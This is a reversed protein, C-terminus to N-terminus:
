ESVVTLLTGWDSGYHFGVDPTDGDSDEYSAATYTIRHVKNNTVDKIFIYYYEDCSYKNSWAAGLVVAEVEVGDVTMKVTMDTLNDEADVTSGFEFGYVTTVGSKTQSVTWKGDLETVQPIIIGPVLIKGSNATMVEDFNFETTFSASTYWKGTYISGIPMIEEAIAKLQDATLSDAEVGFKNKTIIQAMTKGYEGEYRIFNTSYGPVRIGIYGMTAGKYKATLTIDGTIPTTFDFEEGDATYWGLFTYNNKTPTGPNTATGNGKVSQPTAAALTGGDTDFTVTFNKVKTFTASGCKLTGNGNDIFTLSSATKEPRTYNIILKYADDDESWQVKIWNVTPEEAAAGAPTLTIAASKAVADINVVWAGTSNTGEWEGAFIDLQQILGPYCKKNDSTVAKTVVDNVVSGTASSYWIGNFTAGVTTVAEAASPVESAPVTEGHNVSVTKIIEGKDNYFTVTYVKIAWQAVLTIDGTIPTTFDFDVGNLKYGLLNHGTWSRNVSKVTEGHEVTKNEDADGKEGFNFTVTYNKKLVLNTEMLGATSTLIGKDDSITFALDKNTVSAADANITLVGNAVSVSNVTVTVDTYGNYYTATIGTATIVVEYDYTASYGASEEGTYTGALTSLDLTWEAVLTIPGTVTATFDYAEGNLTWGAFTYYDKAPATPAEVVGGYAVYDNEITGAGNTDFAVTYTEVTWSAKITINSTVAAEFDYAETGLYWGAFTHGAKVPDTAPAAVKDGHNVTATTNATGNDADFTVTYTNITWQAKLTVDATVAAEFDYEETGVFWGAFTYGVKTPATPETAKEGDAVTQADVASGGDADFTVTYNVTSEGDETWKAKLTVDATVAAEFDYEDEGVFWGAFTYGAKTPDAPKEAKAGSEVTQAAVSSGGDSDFTVTYSDGCGTFALLAVAVLLIAVLIKKM